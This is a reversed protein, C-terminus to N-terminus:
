KEDLAKFVGEMEFDQNSAYINNFQCIFDEIQVKVLLSGKVTEANSIITINLMSSFLIAVGARFSTGYSLAYQGSM